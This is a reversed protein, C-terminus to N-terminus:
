RLPPAAPRLRAPGPRGDFADNASLVRGNEDLLWLFADLEESEMEIFIAQGPSAAFDYVDYIQGTSLQLDEAALSLEGDVVQGLDIPTAPGGAPAEGLWLSYAGLEGAGFSSVWLTYEGTAPLSYQSIVAGGRDFSDDDTAVVNGTSEALWLFADFELSSLSILIEQGQTGEFRYEDFIQGASLVPDTPELAGEVVDGIAVEVPIAFAPVASAALSAFLALAPWNPSSRVPVSDTCNISSILARLIQILFNRM